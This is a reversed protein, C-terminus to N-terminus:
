ESVSNFFLPPIFSPKNRGIVVDSQVVTGDALTVSATEPDLDVVATGFVVTAPDGRIGDEESAPAAAVRLLEARFDSRKLLLMAAGYRAEFDIPFDALPACDKSLSRYGGCPVGGARRGDFGTRRRLVKLGNPAVAIGQGGTSVSADGREYVTVAHDARLVAAAALGALGSGVITISLKGDNTSM